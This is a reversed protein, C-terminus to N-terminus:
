FLEKQMPAEVKGKAIDWLYEASLDMGIGIRGLKSFWTAFHVTTKEQRTCKAINGNSYSFKDRTDFLTQASFHESSDDGSTNNSQIHGGHENKELQVQKNDTHCSTKEVSIYPANTSFAHGKKNKQKSHDTATQSYMRCFYDSNDVPKEYVKQTYNNHYFIQDCSEQGNDFFHSQSPKKNKDRSELIEFIKNDKVQNYNPNSATSSTEPFLEQEPYNDIDLIYNKHHGQQEGCLERQRIKPTVLHGRIPCSPSVKCPKGDSGGYEALFRNSISSLTWVLCLQVSEDRLPIQIANAQILNGSV